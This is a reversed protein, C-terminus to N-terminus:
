LQPQNYLHELNSRGHENTCTPSARSGSAQEIFVICITIERIRVQNAALVESSFVVKLRSRFKRKRYITFVDVLCSMRSTVQRSWLEWPAARACHVTISGSLQSLSVAFSSIRSPHYSLNHHQHINLPTAYVLATSLHVGSNQPTQSRMDVILASVARLTAAIICDLITQEGWM